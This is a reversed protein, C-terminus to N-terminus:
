FQSKDHILYYFLILFILYINKVKKKYVDFPLQINKGVLMPVPYATPTIASQRFALDRMTSWTCYNNSWHGEQVQGTKLHYFSGTGEKM